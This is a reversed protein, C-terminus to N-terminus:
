PTRKSMRQGKTWRLKPTERSACGSCRWSETSEFGTTVFPSLFFPSSRAADSFDFSSPPRVGQVVSFIDRRFISGASAFTVVYWGKEIFVDAERRSCINKEVCLKNIRISSSETSLTLSAQSHRSFWQSTCRVREYAFRRLTAIRM